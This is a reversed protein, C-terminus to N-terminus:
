VIDCYPSLYLALTHLKKCDVHRSLQRGDKDLHPQDIEPRIVCSSDVIQRSGTQFIGCTSSHQIDVADGSSGLGPTIPNLLRRLLLQRGMVDIMVSWYKDASFVMHKLRDSCATHNFVVVISSSNLQLQCRSTVISLSKSNLSVAQSLRRKASRYLASWVPLALVPKFFKRIIRM